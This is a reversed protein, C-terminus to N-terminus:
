MYLLNFNYLNGNECGFNFIYYTSVYLKVTWRRLVFEYQRVQTCDTIMKDLDCTWYMTQLVVSDSPKRTTQRFVDSSLHHPSRSTSRQSKRPAPRLSCASYATPVRTRRRCPRPGRWARRVCRRRRGVRRARRSRLAVRRAWTRVRWWRFCNCDWNLVHEWLM